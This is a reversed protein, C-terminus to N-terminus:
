DDAYCAGKCEIFNCPPHAFVCNNDQPSPSQQLSQRSSQCYGRCSGTLHGAPETICFHEADTSSGYDHAGPNPCSAGYDDKNPVTVRWYTACNCVLCYNGSGCTVSIHKSCSYYTNVFQNNPCCDNVAYLRATLTALFLVLSASAPRMIHQM